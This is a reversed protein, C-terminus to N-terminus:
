GESPAIQQVIREMRMARSGKVLVTMGAHMQPALAAALAAADGFHRAGAGYGEVAHRTLEGLAYLREIGLRRALEGARRHLEPGAAGLEGMDGLVLVREGSAQKLVELGATLSAPNANYSDDLVRAGNAGRRLELRGSARELKELGRRIDDLGAGAALAAGSAALANLVNHRGLLPLRMRIEGEPTKLQMSSGEADLTYDASVEAPQEIGFRLCRREGALQRWLGAHPDDANIVATGDPALGAFIEGKARAVAEVSGLGALHAEGANTIVAVTPRALRTLHAIEGPHNMGMEVVAHRHDPRLRLLTLPVGIDNNLNGATALGPARVSLISHVMNKVTTKGNSGTVAVLPIDFRDRWHSALRGLAVRTDAVEIQPLPEDLAHTVLAGAAGRAAAAGVFAHGDFRPGALAVFLEGRALTRSDSGVGGFEADAGHLAGDLIEAAAALTM